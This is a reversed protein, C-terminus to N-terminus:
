EIAGLLESQTRTCCLIMVVDYHTWTHSGLTHRLVAGPRYYGCGCESILVVRHMLLELSSPLKLEVELWPGAEMVEVISLAVLAVGEM